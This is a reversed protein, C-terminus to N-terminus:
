MMEYQPGSGGESPTWRINKTPDKIDCAKCQICNGGHIMLRPLQQENYMIEYVGAPCYRGEPFAYEKLNVDIAVQRNTLKLHYPQNEDYAINALFLSQSLDFTVQNDHKPYVIPSFDAAKKLSKRDAIKHHLTWPANGRLIYTDFAAYLLGAYLGHRLAPRINRVRYLEQWLWSAKINEFYTTCEVSSHDKLLPFISEAAIMGSKMATHIGKIKPVNLFGAADGVILGGPFTLKPLSQIGGEILTRAGYAIRRGKALLPYISPHLKVRQLEEYPNLYPNQYDLGVVLGLSVLNEGFHYLFTGGYTNSDLPYGISHMVTGAQHLEKPVEWIEKIGLGFTQPDCNARLNFKAFLSETLSGRCGEAFIVQKAMLNVGPQFNAKPQGRTDVGKDGTVIGVVKDNDYIIDTAAFGPFINIGLNEAVSALFRCFQGLSIIYNGHNHMQPPTPLTYTKKETLFQFYDQTVPTHLPPNLNQWDPLLENLARPELVAGSLIHSGIAAGKDVLCISLETQNEVALQQLRIATAFGSPGGGVIVVDFDLSERTNM